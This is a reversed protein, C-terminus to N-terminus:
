DAAAARALELIKELMRKLYPCKAVAETPDLDAFLLPGDVAKKYRKHLTMGYFQVLRKSPPQEFDIEEPPRALAEIKDHVPAPFLAPQALLWAETEHVAFFQHFRGQDVESEITDRATYYRTDVSGQTMCRDPLGYLDLLGIVAVLDGSDEEEIFMRARKPADKVFGGSGDFSVAEIKVSQGLKENLWRAIFQPVAKRETRGEVFMVFRM